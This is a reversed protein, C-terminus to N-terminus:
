RTRGAGRRNPMPMLTAKSPDIYKRFVDIRNTWRIPESWMRLCAYEAPHVYGPWSDDRMHEAMTVLLHASTYKRVNSADRPCYKEIIEVDPAYGGPHFTVLDYKTAVYQDKIHSLAPDSWLWAFFGPNDFIVVPDLWVNQVNSYTSQLSWLALGAGDQSLDPNQLISELCKVTHTSVSDPWEKGLWGALDKLTKAHTQGAALAERDKFSLDAFDGNFRYRPRM